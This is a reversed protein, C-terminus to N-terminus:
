KNKEEWLKKLKSIYDSNNLVPNTYETQAEMPKAMM